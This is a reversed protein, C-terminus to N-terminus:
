LNLNERLTSGSYQSKVLGRRQLEPVVLNTFDDFGGPLYPPSIIFGDAQGDKHCYELFDAIQTPTGVIQPVFMGEGYLQGIESLTLDDTGAMQKAVQLTGVVGGSGPIDMFKQSLDFGSLDIDLHSSLTILGAIPDVLANHRDKKEQASAETEAVFPMFAPFVKLSDPDRGFESLLEKMAKYKKRRGAETPDIVFVLEAWKAAFEMGQASAGAQMFVPRGQPSHPVTLPGECTIWKGTFKVSKVKDADAFRQGEKDFLLADPDWSEWLKVSAEVFEHAREYRSQRDLHQDFGFNRAEADNISTVINWAIRGKSLHDLTAFVRALDFPSSYTTSKTVGLGLNQTVGAMVLAAYTPELAAVFQVGKEVSHRYSGGYKAHAALNDAFFAFDFCAAELNRAIGQYFEPTLFGNTAASHKWAGDSHITPSTNLYAALHFQHAM